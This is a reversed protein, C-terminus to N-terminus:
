QFRVDRGGIIQEVAQGVGQAVERPEEAGGFDGNVAGLGLWECACQGFPQGRWRRGQGCTTLVTSVSGPTCRGHCRLMAEWPIWSAFLRQSSSSISYEALGDSSFRRM